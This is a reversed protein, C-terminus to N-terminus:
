GRPGGPGGAPASVSAAATRTDIPVVLTATYGADADGSVTALQASASDDGFVTDGALTAASLNRASSGYGDLSYVAASEAQPLAMQSTAIANAADTISAVDPYVEFHIHPWRGAYCGPFISTFSVRGQADAVQVGRLYTVDELGDSYLSYDGEATCHWAYLAAGAFPAGGNAVDVLQFEITLPVGTATAGGDISRTIDRRVIGSRDLIDPGNTGDAPYPGATEEPIESDTEAGTDDTGGADSPSPSASSASPATTCAALIMAGIGLGAFGLVGRRSMVTRIDFPAGQDVVEEDPRDLPRGQYFPGEPTIDPDPIRSM